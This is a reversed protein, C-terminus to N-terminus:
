GRLDRRLNRHSRCVKWIPNVPWALGPFPAHVGTDKYFANFVSAAHVNGYKNLINQYLRSYMGKGPGGASFSTGGGMMSNLVCTPVLMDDKWGCGQFALAFHTVEDDTSTRIEGGEYPSPATSISTGPELGGFIDTALAVLEDHDYGAAAVVMKEPTMQESVFAALVEPTIASLNRPPCMLPKGLPSSGGFAAPHALEQVVAQHNKNYEDLEVSIAQAQESVQM